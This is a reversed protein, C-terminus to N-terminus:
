GISFNNWKVYDHRTQVNGDPARQTVKPRNRVRFSSTVNRPLYSAESRSKSIYVKIPRNLRTDFFDTDWRWFVMSYSNIWVFSTLREKTQCRAQTKLRLLTEHSAVSYHFITCNNKVSRLEISCKETHM